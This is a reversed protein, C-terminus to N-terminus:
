SKKIFPSSSGLLGKSNFEKNIVDNRRLKQHRYCRQRGKQKVKVSFKLSPEARERVNLAAKQELM